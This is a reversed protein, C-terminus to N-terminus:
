WVGPFLRYRVRSRYEAYGELEDVLMKEEGVIRASLLLTLAFALGLGAFSGLLLPGGVFLLTAGLYMPHRVFGYVGQTVVTQKRESQIRVLPSLYSNDRFARFLFVSAGLLLAVGLIELSLPFPPSWRFRRADLPMVAIWAMFGFGLGLVAFRDWGKQGGGSTRYREALLAPNNLALWVITGTCLAVFWVNFIWAEFWGWDGGVVLILTPWFLLYLATGFIKLPSM